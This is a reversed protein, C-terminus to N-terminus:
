GRSMNEPTFWGAGGGSPAKPGKSVGEGTNSGSPAGGLGQAFRNLASTARDMNVSMSKTSDGGKKLSENLEDLKAQARAIADAQANSALPIDKDIMNGVVSAADVVWSPGGAKKAATIEAQLKAAAVEKDKQSGNLAGKASGTAQSLSEITGFHQNVKDNIFQEGVKFAMYSAAAIGLAQGAIAWAGGNGAVAQAFTAANGMLSKKFSAAIADGAASAGANLLAGGAAKGAAGAVLGAGGIIPHAAFFRVLKSLERVLPPMLGTLEKIASIAEPQMFAEQLETMAQQLKRKPSEMRAALDKSMESQTQGNRAMGALFEDFTKIGEETVAKGKMGAKAADAVSKDFPETLIKYLAMEKRDTIQTEFAKRVEGGKAMIMRLRAIADPENILNKAFDKDPGGQTLKKIQTFVGPARMASFVGNMARSAENFGGLADDAQNLMGLVLKLGGAGKLGGAQATAAVMDFGNALNELTPGGIDANAVVMRLEQNIHAADVGFKEFLTGAIARLQEFPKGTATAVKGVENIARTTFEVDGTSKLLEKYGETLTELKTASNGAATEFQKQVSSLSVTEGTIDRISRQIQRYQETMELAGQIGEKLGFAGGLAASLGIMSKVSSFLDAIAKKGAGFGRELAKGIKGGQKDAEEGLSKISVSFQGSDLTLKISAEKNAM